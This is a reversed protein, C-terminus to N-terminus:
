FRAEFPIFGWISERGVQQIVDIAELSFFIDRKTAASQAKADKNSSFRKEIFDRLLKARAPSPRQMHDVLKVAEAQLFVDRQRRPITGHSVYIIFLITKTFCM